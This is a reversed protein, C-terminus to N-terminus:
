RNQSLPHAASELEQPRRAPVTHQTSGVTHDDGKPTTDLRRKHASDTPWPAQRIWDVVREFRYPELGRLAWQVTVGQDSLLGGKIDGVSTGPASSWIHAKYLRSRVVQRAVIDAEVVAVVSSRRMQRRVLRAVDTKKLVEEFLFRAAAETGYTTLGACVIVRQPSDDTWSSVLVIGIDRRPVGEQTYRQEFDGIEVGGLRLTRREADLEVGADPYDLNFRELYGRTYENKLPGGLLLLDGEPRSSYEKSMFLSMEKKPYYRAVVRSAVAIARLEGVATLTADAEGPGQTATHNTTAVVDIRGRRQLGLVQRAPRMAFIWRLLMEGLPIVIFPLMLGAVGLARDVTM